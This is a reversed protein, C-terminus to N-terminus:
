AREISVATVKYEPTGTYPDRHPSTVRNIFAKATNFTAFSQGPSLRTEVQVPLITEGYRSRVRVQDGVNLGLHEADSPCISIRDEAAFVSGKTRATMTGANFQYLTRGTTLVFPFEPSAVEPTPRFEVRRLAAQQGSAFHEVHLVETGPHDDTPCPWQLGAVDLRRYSLGAGAPWVQRVEDWIQEASQFDFPGALGMARAVACIIEWDAKSEGPPHLVQRVRQVRREANM